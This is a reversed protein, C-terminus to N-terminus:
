CMCGPICTIDRQETELRVSFVHCKSDDAMLFFAKEVLPHKKDINAVIRMFLLWNWLSDVM